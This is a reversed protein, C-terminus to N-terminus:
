IPGFFCSGFTFDAFWHLSWCELPFIVGVSCSSHGNACMKISYSSILSGCMPIFNRYCCGTWHLKAICLKWNILLIWWWSNPQFCVNGKHWMCKTLADEAPLLWSGESGFWLYPHSQSFAALDMRWCGKGSNKILSSHFTKLSVKRDAFPIKKVLSDRWLLRLIKIFVQFPIM